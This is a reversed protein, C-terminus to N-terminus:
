LYLMMNRYAKKKLKYIPKNDEEELIYIFVIILDNMYQKRTGESKKQAKLELLFDNMLEKNYKNVQEWKQKTYFRNYVAM